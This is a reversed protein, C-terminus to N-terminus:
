TYMQTLQKGTGYIEKGGTYQLLGCEEAEM